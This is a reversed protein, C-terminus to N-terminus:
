DPLLVTEKDKHKRLFERDKDTLPADELMDPRKKLTRLLAQEHRWKQINAHHGSLLVEPVKRGRWIEPRTYHPYELLGNWHSEGKYSDESALVGPVLRCVADCVAMAPIEGGTLVFDGISIEEDVCEEVFREDVGEYHGCVLILRGYTVLRKADEQVFRKGQPSMLITHAEGEAEGLIYKWCNYLPDANMIMGTGGGYPYDDVQKQKNLTFDRINHCKITLYGRDQARGIISVDMISAVTDPFLTMIDIRM